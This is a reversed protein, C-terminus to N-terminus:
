DLDDDDGSPVFDDGVGYGLEMRFGSWPVGTDNDISELVLYESTGDTFDTNFQMDIYGNFSFKKIPVVINNDIESPPTVNDNNPNPTDIVPIDVTGLGPGTGAETGFMTASTITGAFGAGPLAFCLLTLALLGFFGFSANRLM